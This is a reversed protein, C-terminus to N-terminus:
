LAIFSLVVSNIMDPKMESMRMAFFQKEIEKKLRTDETKALVFNVRGDKDTSFLVEVKQALTKAQCAPALVQPFKFFQRITKEADTKKGEAKPTNGSFAVISSFLLVTFFASKTIQNITKM